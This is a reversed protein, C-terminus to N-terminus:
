ERGSCTREAAPQSLGAGVGRRGSHQSGVRPSSSARLLLVAAELLTGAGCLRRMLGLRLRGRYLHFKQRRSPRAAAAAVAAARTRKPCHLESVSLPALRRQSAVLPSSSSAAGFCSDRLLVHDRTTQKKGRATSRKARWM